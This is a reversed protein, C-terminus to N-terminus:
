ETLCYGALRLSSKCTIDAQFSLKLICTELHMTARQKDSYVIASESIQMSDIDSASLEM